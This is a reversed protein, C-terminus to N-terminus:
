YYVSLVMTVNVQAKDAKKMEMSDVLILIPLNELTQMFRYIDNYYGIFNIDFFIAKAAGVDVVETRPRISILDLNLRSIAQSVYKLAELTQEEKTKHSRLKEVPAIELSELLKVKQEDTQLELLKGSLEQRLSSVEHSKPIYLFYYFVFFVAILVTVFLLWRERESINIKM